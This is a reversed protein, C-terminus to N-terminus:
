TKIGRLKRIKDVVYSKEGADFLIFWASPMLALECCLTTLCVRLLSAPLTLRALSGAALGFFTLAGIPLIVRMIWHRISIGDIQWGLFARFFAIFVNSVIIGVIISLMGFGFMFMGWCTALGIVEAWGVVFSYYAIRHGIGMIAMWYGESMRSFTMGVLIAMCIEAAWFPPEQLWLRMVEHAELLLPVVFILIMFTSLRCTRFMFTKVGEIDGEGAKNAIAPWFAGSISSSLTSAHSAIASGVSISANYAPGLYKNVLIARGQVGILGTAAGWFRAGAFLAIQKMREVNWLYHARFRCEPYKFIARVLIILAPGVAFMCQWFAYKVIWVNPHTIMYYLVIANLTTTAFSYITLEAIEQKAQYMAVFPVNVMGVFCALCTFRWVWVCLDIRDPPITLFNRVAWVGVPYGIIILMVPIVTHILLATNFWRRCDELGDVENGVKHAAGVAVAYFRMVSMSLLGNVFAVFGTLGGILGVLGYDVEGLAMLAWRGCFLGIVLAYLSRGYTAVINWFIRRNPTM